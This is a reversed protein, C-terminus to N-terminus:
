TSFAEPIPDGGEPRQKDILLATEVRRNKRGKVPM